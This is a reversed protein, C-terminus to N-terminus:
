DLLRGVVDQVWRAFSFVLPSWTAARDKWKERRNRAEHDDSMQWVEERLSKPGGYPHASHASSYTRESSVGQTVAPKSAVHHPSRPPQQNSARSGDGLEPVYKYITSRSVGLLRAVSSVTEEPRTRIAKAQHAHTAMVLPRGLRQGRARAAALGENTGDIVLERIFEALAAFAHFVLRGGPTTTDIAEHLSRFEIDRKRLGTVISILDQLSRGLRDLSPVVLTDGSRM